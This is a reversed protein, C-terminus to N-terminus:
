LMIEKKITLAYIAEIEDNHIKRSLYCLFNYNINENIKVIKLEDIVALFYKNINDYDDSNLGALIYINKSEIKKDLLYFAFNVCEYWKNQLKAASYNEKAINEIERM